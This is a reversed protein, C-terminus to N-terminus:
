SVHGEKHALRVPGDVIAVPKDTTKGKRNIGLHELNILGDFERVVFVYLARELARMALDAPFTEPDAIGLARVCGLHCGEGGHSPCAELADWFAELVEDTVAPYNSQPYVNRLRGISTGMLELEDAMWRLAKIAAEREIDGRFVVAPRPGDPVSSRVREGCDCYGNQVRALAEDYTEESDGVELRLYYTAHMGEREGESSVSARVYENHVCAAHVPIDHEGQVTDSAYLTIPDTIDTM